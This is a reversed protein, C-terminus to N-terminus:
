GQEFSIIKLTAEAPIMYKEPNETIIRINRWRIEKGADKAKEIGHVQLGIFGKATVNDMLNSTNIGNVWIRLDTGIAEIRYHNWSNNKFAKRGSPHQKLDYLWGRRGEDYIGGSWARESPDIEAQYGHVRGDLYDPLSNSRFQVGSNISPDVKVEFELIFDDYIEKTCLFTNPSGLKTTGVIESNLISYPASGNKLEWNDLSKGDFLSIWPQKEAKCSTLLLGMLPIYFLKTINM